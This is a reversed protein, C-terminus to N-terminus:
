PGTWTVWIDRWWSTKWTQHLAMTKRPRQTGTTKRPRHPAVESCPQHTSTITCSESCRYPPRIQLYGRPESRTEVQGGGDRREM